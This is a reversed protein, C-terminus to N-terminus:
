GDERLYLREYRQTMAAASYRQEYLLRGRERFRNRKEDDDMMDRIAKALAEKDRPAVLVGNYGDVIIDLVGGV